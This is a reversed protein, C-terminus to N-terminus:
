WNVRWKLEKYVGELKSSLHPAEWNPISKHYLNWAHYNLLDQIDKIHDTLSALARHLLVLNPISTFYLMNDVKPVIHCAEYNRFSRISKIKVDPCSERVAYKIAHNAQTNDDAKCEKGRVDITTEGKHKSNDRIYQRDWCAYKDAPRIKGDFVFIGKTLQDVVDPSAFIANEAVLQYISETQPNSFWIDAHYRGLIVRCLDMYATRFNGVTKEPLDKGCVTEEFKERALELINVKEGDGKEENPVKDVQLCGLIDECTHGNNLKDYSKVYSVYSAVTSSETSKYEVKKPTAKYYGNKVKMYYALLNELDLKAM